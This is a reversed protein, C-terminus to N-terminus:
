QSSHLAGADPLLCRACVQDRISMNAIREGEVLVVTCDPLAATLRQFIDDTNEIIRRGKKKLITIQPGAGLDPETALGMNVMAADRGLPGTDAALVSCRSPAGHSAASRVNRVQEACLWACSLQVLLLQEASRRKLHVDPPMVPGYVALAPGRVDLAWIKSPIMLACLAHYVSSIRVACARSTSTQLSGGRSGWGGTGAIAGAGHACASQLRPWAFSVSRLPMARARSMSMQLSGGGAVLTHVCTLGGQGGDALQRLTLPARKSIIAGLNREASENTLFQALGKM